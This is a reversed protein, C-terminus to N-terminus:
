EVHHRVLRSEYYNANSYFAIRHLIRGVGKAYRYPFTRVGHPYDAEFSTMYTVTSLCDKFSGAPVTVLPSPPQMNAELMVLPPTETPISDVGLQETTSTTTFLPTKSEASVMYGSSDRYFRRIESNFEKGEMIAYTNGNIVTDGSIYISDLNNSYISENGLTDIVYWQYIWYNGKNLPLYDTAPVPEIPGIVTDDDNCNCSFVLMALASLFIYTSQKM